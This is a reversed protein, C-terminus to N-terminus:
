SRGRLPTLIHDRIAEAVSRMMVPPVARGMREYQQAYTGTSEWDDPFSCLRKLEPITFKRREYPHSVSAISPAAGEATITNVPKNPDSKVLQFYKTSQEGPRLKDWEKGVAYGSMSGPFGAEVCDKEGNSLWPIADRISYTFRLPQPYVPHLELDKRVGVFITRERSQPVGLWKANLVRAEVRYGCMELERYIERFYGVATGLVLGKVNEEVFVKPQIGRVLRSFEFFLDDTRQERDSYSKVKGWGKEGKGATSFSACPPSGDFIDLQGQELGLKQLVDEATVTRIDRGDLYTWPAANAAYTSRAEDVFENAYGIRFGAMRYGLSSGGGGAFTSAVTFGNWPLSRIQEMTPVAYAPREIPERDAMM